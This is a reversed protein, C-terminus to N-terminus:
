KGEPEIYPTAYLPTGHRLAGNTWRIKDGPGPSQMDVHGVPQAALAKQMNHLKHAANMVHLGWQDNPLPFMKEDYIFKIVFEEAGKMAPFEMSAHASKAQAPFKSLLDASLEPHSDACSRGYSGLAAPAHADHDMDIVFYRCGYHKGRPADSGDVRRVEFKRFIGQQEAPKTLDREPFGPQAPTHATLAAIAKKNEAIAEVVKGTTDLNLFCGLVQNSYELAAHVHLEPVTPKNM